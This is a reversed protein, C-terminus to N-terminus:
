RDGSCVHGDRALAPFHGPRYSDVNNRSSSSLKVLEMMIAEGLPWSHQLVCAPFIWFRAAKHFNCFKRGMFMKRYVTTYIIM